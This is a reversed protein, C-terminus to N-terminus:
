KTWYDVVLVDDLLPLLVKVFAQHAAHPLYADRGAEDAFTVMFCHTFGKSRMEPSNNIGAEYGKITDIQKPLKAFADVMEQVKEKPADAKFKFLVVHRLVKPSEPAATTPVNMLSLGVASLLLLLFASKRLM